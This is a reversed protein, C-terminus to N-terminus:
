NRDHNRRGDPRRVDFDSAPFEQGTAEAVEAYHRIIKAVYSDRKRQEPTMELEKTRLEVEAIIRGTGQDAKRSVIGTNLVFERAIQIAVPDDKHGLM